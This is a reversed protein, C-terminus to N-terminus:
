RYHPGSVWGVLSYRAGSTLPMVRHLSFSPFIILSGRTRVAKQTSGTAFFELDGGEYQTPETLQAVISLKRVSMERYGFDQHWDFFSGAQYQAIQLGELFGTLEFNYLSKNCELVAAALRQYIWEAERAWPLYSVRSKRINDAYKLTDDKRVMADQLPFQQLLALARDCEEPSFFRERYAFNQYYPLQELPFIFM